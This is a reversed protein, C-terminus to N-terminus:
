NLSIYVFNLLVKFKINPRIIYLNQKILFLTYYCWKQIFFKLVFERM